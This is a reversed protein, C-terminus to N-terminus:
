CFIKNFHTPINKFVLFTFCITEINKPVKHVYYLSYMFVYKFLLFLHLKLIIFIWVIEIFYKIVLSVKHRFFMLLRFLSEKGYKIDKIHKSINVLDTDGSIHFLHKMFEASENRLYKDNNDDHCVDNSEENEIIDNDDNVRNQVGRRSDLISLKTVNITVNIANINM